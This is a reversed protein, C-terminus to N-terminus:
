YENQIGRAIQRISEDEIPVGKSYQEMIEKKYPIKEFISKNYKKLDKM